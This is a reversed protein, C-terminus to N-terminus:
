LEKRANGVNTTWVSVGDIMRSYYSDEIVLGKKYVSDNFLKDLVRTLYWDQYADLGLILSLISADYDNTSDNVNRQKYIFMDDIYYARGGYDRKVLLECQIDVLKEFEEIGSLKKFVDDIDCNLILSVLKKITRNFSEKNNYVNLRKNNISFFVSNEKKEIIKISYKNSVKIKENYIM